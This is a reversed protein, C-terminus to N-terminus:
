LREFCPVLADGFEIFKAEVRDGISLAADGHAMVRFGEDTDVLVITYPAYPRLAETPARYVRTLAHVTGRGSAQLSKPADRGCRPCFGRHFYWLAGCGECRQYAIGADGATWDLITRTATV